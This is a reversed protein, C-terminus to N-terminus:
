SIEKVSVELRNRGQGELEIDVTQKLTHWGIVKGSGKQTKVASGIAPFIKSLEEYNEDEYRMCCKLRGCQGSLRDSGRHSVQQRDTMDSTVGGLKKLSTQCCLTKGCSGLDGSIKAEDRVGIQQLRVSQKYHNTLDKVLIRFDVRGDTVFPFILRSKDLSFHADIVKMPLDHRVVIKKCYALVSDKDKNLGLFIELDNTNAKRVSSSSEIEGKNSLEETTVKQLGVVTAMDSGFENKVVVKEGLQLEFDEVQHDIVKDWEAIKTQVILM